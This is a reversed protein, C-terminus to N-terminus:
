QGSERISIVTLTATDRGTEIRMPTGAPVTWYDDPKREQKRGAIETTLEGSQLHMVRFGEEPLADITTDNPIGWNRVSVRVRKNAASPTRVTLPGEFRTIASANGPREPEQAFAPARLALGLAIAFHIQM